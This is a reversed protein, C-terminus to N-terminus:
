ARGHRYMTPLVSLEGNGSEPDLGAMVAVPPLVSLEDNGTEPDLGPM